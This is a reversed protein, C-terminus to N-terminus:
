RNASLQDRIEWLRAEFIPSPSPQAGPLSWEFASYLQDTGGLSAIERMLRNAEPSFHDLGHVVVDTVDHDGIRGNPMLTRNAAQTSEDGHIM